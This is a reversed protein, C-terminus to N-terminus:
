VFNYSQDQRGLLGDARLKGAKRQAGAGITDAPLIGEAQPEAGEVIVEAVAGQEVLHLDPLQRLQARAGRLARQLDTAELQLQCLPQPGIGFGRFLLPLQLLPAVEQETIGARTVPGVRGPPAPQLLATRRKLDQGLHVARGAPEPARGGAQQGTSVMEVVTIVEYLM